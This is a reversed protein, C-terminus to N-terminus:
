ARYYRRARGKGETVVLGKAILKNLVRVTKHKEFGGANDLEARTYRRGVSMNKILRTEDPMMGSRTGVVPLVVTISHLLIEFRPKELKDTYAEKIRLVGTGFKEILGLRFFVDALVPNRLVSVRGTLYEEESLGAPLGGPSSVEVRDPFLSVRVRANVDWTRHVLANAVAERFAEQPVADCRQREAGEIKESRLHREFMEMAAALQLLVSAGEVTSRDLIESISTGFKACDIGPYPNNDALLAGARTYGETNLLGLTKLVDNDVRAIGLAQQLAQSLTDFSLDQEPTLLQDFSTNRGELVLRELEIRDVEVTSTASRKYAKGRYLYPKSPSEFVELKVTKHESDVELSFRPQPSICDNIKNEIADCVGEPDDLGIFICRFRKRSM